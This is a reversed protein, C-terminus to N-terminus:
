RESDSGFVVNKKKINGKYVPKKNREKNMTGNMESKNINGKSVVKGDVVTQEFNSSVSSSKVYGSAKTGDPSDEEEKDKIKNERDKKWHFDSERDLSDGDLIEDNIGDIFDKKNKIEKKKETGRPYVNQDKRSIKKSSDKGDKGLVSDLISGLAIVCMCMFIKM